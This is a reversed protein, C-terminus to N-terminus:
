AVFGNLDGVNAGCDLFIDGNNFNIKRLFYDDALNEARQSVGREYAMNGQRRHKFKFSFNPITNDSISFSSGSWSLRSSSGYLISKLNFLVAFVRKDTRLLVNQYIDMLFRTHLRIYRKLFSM